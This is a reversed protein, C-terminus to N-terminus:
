LLRKLRNSLWGAFIALFVCLLGYLLPRSGAFDHLVSNMGVQKVEFSQSTKDMLVKDKFAYVDVTYRGVPMNHPVYFSAKFFRDKIIEIPEVDQLILQEDLKNRLLADKFINYDSASASPSPMFINDVGVQHLKRDEESILSDLDGSAGIRYFGPVKEFLLYSRNMWGGFVKEKRRVKMIRDPARIIIVM